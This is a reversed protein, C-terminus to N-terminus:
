NIKKCKHLKITALDLSFVNAFDSYKSPIKTPAKDWHLAAIQVTRLQQISAKAKLIEMYVVFTKFNKDLATKAFKTKNILKVWSTTSLAEAVIYSKCILKEVGLHFDANSFVLFLMRLGVEMNIDVLLFIEEFFWVRKQSDQLLFRASIIDFTKLTLGDIKQAGINTKWSILGLKAADTPTM